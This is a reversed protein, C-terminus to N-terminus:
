PAMPIPQHLNSCFTQHLTHISHLPTPHIGRIVVIYLVQPASLHWLRILKGVISHSSHTWSHPFSSLPLLPLNSLHSMNLFNLNWVEFKRKYSDWHHDLPVIHDFLWCSVTKLNWQVTEDKFIPDRIKTPFVSSVSSSLQKHSLTFQFYFSFNTWNELIWCGAEAQGLTWRVSTCSSRNAWIQVFHM